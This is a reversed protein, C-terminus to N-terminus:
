FSYGITLQWMVDHEGGSMVTMEVPAAPINLGLTLGGSPVLGVTPRNQGLAPAQLLLASVFSFFSFRLRNPTM